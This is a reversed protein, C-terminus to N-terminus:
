QAEQGNKPNRSNESRRHLEGSLIASNKIWNSCRRIERPDIKKKLRPKRVETKPTKSIIGAETDVANTAVRRCDGVRSARKM